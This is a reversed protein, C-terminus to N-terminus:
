SPSSLRSGSRLTELLVSHAKPDALAGVNFRSWPSASASDVCFIRGPALMV